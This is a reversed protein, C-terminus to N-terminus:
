YAPENIKLSIHSENIMGYQRMIRRLARATEGQKGIIKGMDNANLSLEILVGREDVKRDVKVDEPYSVLPQVISKIYIAEQSEM